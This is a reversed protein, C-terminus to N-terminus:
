FHSGLRDAIDDLMGIDVVRIMLIAPVVFRWQITKSIEGCYNHIVRHIFSTYFSPDVSLVPSEVFQM